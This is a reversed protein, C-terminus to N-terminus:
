DIQMKRQFYNTSFYMLSCNTRVAIVHTDDHSVTCEVKYSKNTHGRYTKLVVGTEIETLYIQQDLCASMACRQNNVARTCTIPHMHDDISMQGARIDYIRLKGDVSGTLIENSTVSVSTM